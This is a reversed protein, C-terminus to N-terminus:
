QKCSDSVKTVNSVNLHGHETANKDMGHEQAESKTKEKLEHAKAHVKSRNGSVTVTQGVHSALDVSDSKIEWTSGDTGTLMYENASEGKQLCGTVTKATNDNDKDQGDAALVGVAGVLMALALLGTAFKVFM